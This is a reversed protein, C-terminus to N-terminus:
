TSHSTFDLPFLRSKIAEDLFKPRNTTLFLVGNYYEFIRLFVLNTFHTSTRLQIQNHYEDSVPSDKIINIFIDADGLLLVCVWPNTLRLIGSLSVEVEPSTIRLDGCPIPFLPRRWKYAVAEATATKGLGPVEHLLIIM